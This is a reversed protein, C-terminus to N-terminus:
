RDLGTEEERAIQYLTTDGRRIIGVYAAFVGNEWLLRLGPRRLLSPLDSGHATALLAAGSNQMALIERAEDMGGIEDCAIIEAGMTRHAIEMAKARPYGSLLDYSAGAMQGIEGRTDIVALRRFRDGRVALTYILSRLVTTKGGCPPAYLLLGKASLLTEELVRYLGDVAIRQRVPLRFVIGTPDYVGIVRGEEAVARGVIGVRVGDQLTVYGERLTEAHAYLSGGCVRRLVDDMEAGRLVVPLPLSGRSTTLVSFADRRLRIEEIQMSPDRDAAKRVADAVAYPLIERLFPPYVERKGQVAMPSYQRSVITSKM